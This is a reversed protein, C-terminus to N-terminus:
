LKGAKFREKAEIGLEKMRGAVHHPEYVDRVRGWGRLALPLMEEPHALLKLLAATMAGANPQVLIGADGNALIEQQTPADCAMAIAGAAMAELYVWGYSEFLSPMLLLHSELMAADVEERSAEPRYQINPLNPLEVPGNAFSSIVQLELRGPYAQNAAQFAELVAPLGKRRAERGVFLLKIKQLNSYKEEVVSREVPQLHALFFPISRIKESSEPALARISEAGAESNLTILHSRRITRLKVAKEAAIEAESLGKDRMAQEFLPGTHCILPLHHVNTPSHGFVVDAGSRRLDALSFRDEHKPLLLEPVPLHLRSCAVDGALRVNTILSPIIAQQLYIELGDTFDKIQPLSCNYLWDTNKPRISFAPSFVYFRVHTGEREGAIRHLYLPKNFVKRPLVAAFVTL